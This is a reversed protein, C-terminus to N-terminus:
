RIHRRRRRPSPLGHRVGRGVRRADAADPSAIMEAGVAAAADAKADSPSDDAVVVRIGRDHLARAVAEGTIALGYM